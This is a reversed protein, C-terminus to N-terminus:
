RMFYEVVVRATVKVDGPRIPTDVAMERFAAGDDMLRVPSYGLAEESISKVGTVASGAARAIAKGKEEAQKTAKELAQIKLSTTDQVEFSLSRIQNIGAAVAVDIVEGVQDPDPLVLVIENTARYRAPRAEGPRPSDIPEHYTHIRYSGTTIQSEELGHAKLAEIARDMLTANESVASQATEGTTEVAMVIRAQDPTAAIEAEGIVRIISDSEGSEALVPGGSSNVVWVLALAVLLVGTSLAAAKTRM